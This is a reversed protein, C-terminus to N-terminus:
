IKAEYTGCEQRCIPCHFDYNKLHEIICAEHFFHKCPLIIFRKLGTSKPDLLELCISCQDQEQVDVLSTLEDFDVKTLKDIADQTLAVTVPEQNPVSQSAIYDFLSLISEGGQTPDFQETTRNILNSLSFSVVRISSDSNFEPSILSDMITQLIPQRTQRRLIRPIHRPSHIRTYTNELRIKKESGILNFYNKNRHRILLDINKKYRFHDVSYVEDPHEFMEQEM